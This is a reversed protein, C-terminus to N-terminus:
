GQVGPRGRGTEREGKTVMFREIRQPQKQKTYVDM